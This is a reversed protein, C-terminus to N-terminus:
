TNTGVFVLKSSNLVRKTSRSVKYETFVDNGLFLLSDMDYISVTINDCFVGGLELPYYDDDDIDIHLRFDDYYEKHIM